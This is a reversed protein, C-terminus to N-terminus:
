KQERERLTGILSDIELDLKLLIDRLNNESIEWRNYTFIRSDYIIKNITSRDLKM